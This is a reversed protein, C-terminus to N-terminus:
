PKFDTPQCDALLNGDDWRSTENYNEDFFLHAIRSGEKYLGICYTKNMVWLYFGHCKGDKASYERIGGNSSYQRVVGQVRGNDFRRMGWYKYGGDEWQDYFCISADMLIENSEVKAWYKHFDELKM